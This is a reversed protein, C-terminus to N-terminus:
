VRYLLLPHRYYLAFRDLSWLSCALTFSPDSGGLRVSLSVSVRSLNSPVPLCLCSLPHPRAPRRRGGSHPINLSSSSASLRPLVGPVCFVMYHRYALSHLLLPQSSPPFVPPPILPPSPSLSFLYRSPLLVLVLLPFHARVFSSSLAVLCPWLHGPSPCSRSFTLLISSSAARNHSVPTLLCGWVAAGL